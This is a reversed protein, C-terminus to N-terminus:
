ELRALLSGPKHDSGKLEARSYASLDLQFGRYLIRDVFIDPILSPKLVDLVLMGTWAPIRMKESTDYNDTGLDYRYTPKFLLPGEEYGSFAIGADM